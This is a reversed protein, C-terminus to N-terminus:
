HHTLLDKKIRKCFFCQACLTVDSTEMPSVAEAAENADIVVSAKIRDAALRRRGETTGAFAGVRVVRSTPAEGAGLPDEALEALDHLDRAADPEPQPALRPDDEGVHARGGVRQALHMRQLQPLKFLVLSVFKLRRQLLPLEECLEHGFRFRFM